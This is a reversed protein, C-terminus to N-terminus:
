DLGLASRKAAQFEENSLIGREYLDNLEQLINVIGSARDFAENPQTPNPTHTTPIPDCVEIIRSRLAAIDRQKQFGIESIQSDYRERVATSSNRVDAIRNSRSLDALSADIVASRRSNELQAIRNDYMSSTERIQRNVEDANSTCNRAVDNTNTQTGKRRLIADLQRRASDSGQGAALRFWQEAVLDSKAVGMGNAYM